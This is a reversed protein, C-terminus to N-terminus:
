SLCIIPSAKKLSLPLFVGLEVPSPTSPTSKSWLHKLSASPLYNTLCTPCVAEQTVCLRWVPQTHLCGRENAQSTVEAISFLSASVNNPVPNPIKSLTSLCSQRGLFNLGVEQSLGYNSFLVTPAFVDTSNKLRTTSSKKGTFM